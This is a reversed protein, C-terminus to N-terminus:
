TELVGSKRSRVAAARSLRSRWRLKARPRRISVRIRSPASTASAITENARSCPTVCIKTARSGDLASRVQNADANTCRSTLRARSMCTVTTASREARRTQAEAARATEHNTINSLNYYEEQHLKR